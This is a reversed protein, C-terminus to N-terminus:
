GPCRVEAEANNGKPRARGFGVAFAVVAALPGVVFIGTMAAEVGLPVSSIDVGWLVGGGLWKGMAPDPSPRSPSSRSM